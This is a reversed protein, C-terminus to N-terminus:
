GGLRLRAITALARLIERTPMKSVGRARDVFRLPIERVRAGARVLRVAYEMLFSYSDSRVTEPPVRELIERRYARLGSTLDSAVTGLLLRYVLNGGRSLLRRHFAWDSDIAGGAIYRSGIAFDAEALAEFLRPLLAPNHSFDADITAVAEAGRDIAARLGERVAAGYGRPGERSLLEVRPTGDHELLRAIRLVAEGTGDPSRDDVVLIRADTEALIRDILLGINERENYTPVLVWKM